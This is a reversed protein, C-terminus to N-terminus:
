GCYDWVEAFDIQMRVSGSMSSERADLQLHLRHAVDPILDASTENVTWSDSSGSGNRSITIRDPTWEM